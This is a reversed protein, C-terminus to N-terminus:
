AQLMVQPPIYQILVCQGRKPRCEGLAALPMYPQSASSIPMDDACSLALKAARMARGVTAAYLVGKLSKNQKHLITREAARM